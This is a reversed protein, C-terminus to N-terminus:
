SMGSVRPGSMGLLAVSVRIERECCDYLRPQRSLREVLIAVITCMEYISYTFEIAAFEETLIDDDDVRMGNLLTRTAGVMGPPGALYYIPSAASKLHKVLM